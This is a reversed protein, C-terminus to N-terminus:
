LIWYSVASTILVTPLGLVTVLLGGALYMTGVFLIKRGVSTSIAYGIIEAPIDGSLM